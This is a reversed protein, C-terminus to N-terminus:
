KKALSVLYVVVYTIYCINEHSKKRKKENPDGSHFMFLKSNRLKVFYFLYDFNKRKKRGKCKRYVITYFTRTASKSTFHSFSSLFLTMDLLKM